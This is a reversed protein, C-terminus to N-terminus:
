RARLRALLEGALDAVENSDLAPRDKRAYPEVAHEPLGDLFRTVACETVKGRLM